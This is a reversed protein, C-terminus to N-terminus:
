SYLEELHHILDTTTVLGVCLGDDDVVPLSSFKGQGLTRAADRITQTAKVTVLDTTMIKDISFEHDLYADFSRDDSGYATFTMKLMDTASIMGVLKEGSLVPVHHWDHAALLKRVDSPKHEIHVTELDSVPTMIRKIQENRKM